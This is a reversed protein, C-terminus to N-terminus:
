PPTGTRPRRTAGAGRLAPRAPTRRTLRPAARAGDTIATELLLRSAIHEWTSSPVFVLDPRRGILDSLRDWRESTMLGGRVARETLEDLSEGATPGRQRIWHLPRATPPIHYRFVTDSTASLLGPELGLVTEYGTVAWQPIATAGNEWRSLTSVSVQRTTVTALRDAFAALTTYRNEASRTRCARLLWGIRM